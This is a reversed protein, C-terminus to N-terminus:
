ACRIGTCSTLRTPIIPGQWASARHRQEKRVHRALAYPIQSILSQLHAPSLGGEGEGSLCLSPYVSLSSAHPRHVMM